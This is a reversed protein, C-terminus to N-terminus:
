LSKMSSPITDEKRRYCEPMSFTLRIRPQIVNPRVGLCLHHRGSFRPISYQLVNQIQPLSTTFKYHNPTETLHWKSSMLSRFLSCKLRGAVTEGTRSFHKMPYVKSRCWSM